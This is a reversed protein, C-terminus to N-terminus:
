RDSDEKKRARYERYYNRWARKCKVCPDKGHRKDYMYRGITGCKPKVEV